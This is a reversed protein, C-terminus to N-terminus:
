ALDPNCYAFIQREAKSPSHTGFAEVMRTERRIQRVAEPFQRRGETTMTYFKRRQAVRRESGAECEAEVLTTEFVFMPVGDVIVRCHWGDRGDSYAYGVVEFGRRLLVLGPAIRKRTFM